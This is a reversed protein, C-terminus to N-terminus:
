PPFKLEREIIKFRRESRLPDLLPATKLNILQPDRLQLAKELWELAKPTNGWQAYLTAYSYAGTNGQFAQFRALATEADAQRGLKHYALALCDQFDKVAEGVGECVARMKEFDGLAYYILAGLAPWEPDKAGLSLGDKYAALAEDYRRASLLASSLFNHSNENLPDLAAARRAAAIGVDTRGMEVAFAGYDRLVRASDRICM